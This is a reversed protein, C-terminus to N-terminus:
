VIVASDINTFVNERMGEGAIATIVTRNKISVVFAKDEMLVLSERAGKEEAKSVGLQIREIENKTLAINRDILRSVAHASFKVDPASIKEQLIDAFTPASKDSVQAQPLPKGRLSSVQQLQRLRLMENTINEIEKAM